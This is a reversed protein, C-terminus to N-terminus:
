LMVSGASVAAGVTLLYPQEAIAQGDTVRVTIAFQGATARPWQVLGNADITMGSPPAVLGYALTDGDPDSAAVAYSYAADAAANM